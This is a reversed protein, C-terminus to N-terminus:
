GAPDAMVTFPGGWPDLLGAFRGFQMDMAPMTVTGGAKEVTAVVDDTSAVAFCTGWGTSGAEGRYLGGLPAGETAFTSYEPPGGDMAMQDFHWGFVTSYFSRAAAPDAVAVDNWVLSGPQNFVEAGIFEGHQWVGFGNGQPDLAIAMTGLPGVAMPPAVVTGGADTIATSSAAADDTAFYTTWRAPTSEDMRPMMGAAAKGNSLCTLYGGFEPQGDTYTWGLAAAYFQKAADIDAAPYDVWCPTGAPWATDRTPM